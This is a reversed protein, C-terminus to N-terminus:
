CGWLVLVRHGQNGAQVGCQDSAANFLPQRPFSSTPFPLTPLSALSPIFPLIELSYRSLYKCAEEEEEVEEEEEEEDEEEEKM